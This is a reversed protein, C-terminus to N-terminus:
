GVVMLPRSLELRVSLTRADGRRRGGRVGAENADAGGAMGAAEVEDIAIVILRADDNLAVVIINQERSQCCTTGSRAM